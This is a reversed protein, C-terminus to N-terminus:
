GLLKTLAFTIVAGIAAGIVTAVLTSANKKLWSEKIESLYVANISVLRLGFIEFAILTVICLAFLLLGATTIGSALLLWGIAALLICVITGGFFGVVYKAPSAKRKLFNNIRQCKGEVWIEDEGIVELTSEKESLYLGAYRWESSPALYAGCSLNLNHVVPPISPDGFLEETGDKRIERDNLNVYFTVDSKSTIGEALYECLEEIDTRDLKYAALGITKRIESM